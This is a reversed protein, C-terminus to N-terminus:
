LLHRFQLGLLLLSRVMKLIDAVNSERMADTVNRVLAQM